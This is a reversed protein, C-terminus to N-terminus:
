AGLHPFVDRDNLHRRASTDLRALERESVLRDRLIQARLSQVLDPIV